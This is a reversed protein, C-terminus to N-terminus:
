EQMVQNEETVEHEEDEEDSEKVFFQQVHNCGWQQLGVQEVCHAIHHSHCLNTLSYEDGFPPVFSPSLEPSGNNVGSPGAKGMQLDLNAELIVQSPCDQNDVNRLLDNSMYNDFDEGM